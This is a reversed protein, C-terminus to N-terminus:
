IVKDINAFAKLKTESINITPFKEQIMGNFYLVIKTEM